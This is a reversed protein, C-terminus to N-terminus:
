GHHVETTLGRRRCFEAWYKGSSRQVSKWLALTLDWYIAPQRYRALRTRAWIGGESVRWNGLYWGGPEVRCRVERNSEVLTVLVKQPGPKGRLAARRLRAAAPGDVEIYTKTKTKM